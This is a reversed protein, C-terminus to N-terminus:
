TLGPPLMGTSASPATISISSGERGMVTQPPGDHYFYVVCLQKQHGVAPDGGMSQNNVPVNVHGNQVMAQVLATVDALAGAIGYHASAIKITM